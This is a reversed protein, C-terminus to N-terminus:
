HPCTDLPMSKMVLHFAESVRKRPLYITGSSVDKATDM